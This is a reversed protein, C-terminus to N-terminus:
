SFPDRNKRLLASVTKDGTPDDPPFHGRSNAGSSEGRDRGATKMQALSGIMSGGGSGGNMSAAMLSETAAAATVAGAAIADKIGMAGSGAGVLTAATAGGATRASAFAGGFLDSGASRGTAIAKQIIVPAAITSFILWIGLFALGMLNQLSYMDNGVASTTLFSRDTMFTLMGQTVLAAVGWGLPWIMVGVLNLLYRRGLQQLSPFAMTGIFIPSLAYGIFLIANQLIYAWWVIASAIWGLFAFAVTMLAEVMSARWEVVKEWWSQNNSDTSKKMELAAKYQDQIQAPNVNLTNTVTDNVVTVIQNGWTPLFVLIAVLVIIRGFVRLNAAASRHTTITAAILGGTILLYAVPTLLNKLQLCQQLFQPFMSNFNSM